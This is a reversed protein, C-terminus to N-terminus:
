DHLEINNAPSGSEQAAGSQRRHDRRRGCRRLFDAVARLRMVIGGSVRRRMAPCRAVIRRTPDMVSVSGSHDGCASRVSRAREDAASNARRGPAIIAGVTIRTGPVRAAVARSVPIISGVVPIRIVGVVVAIRVVVRTVIVPIAASEAVTPKPVALVEPMTFVKGACAKAAVAEPAGPEAALPYAAKAAGLEPATLPDAAKAPHARAVERPGAKAAAAEAASVEASAAETSAVEAAAPEGAATV